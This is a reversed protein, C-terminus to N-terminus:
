KKNGKSIRTTLQFNMFPISIYDAQIEAVMDNCDPCFLYIFRGGDASLCVDLSVRRCKTCVFFCDKKTEGYNEPKLSIDSKPTKLGITVNRM